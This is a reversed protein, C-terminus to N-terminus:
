VRFRAPMASASSTLSRARALRAERKESRRTTRAFRVDNWESRVARAGRLVAPEPREGHAPSMAAGFREALALLASFQALLRLFRRIALIVAGALAGAGLVTLAIWLAAWFLPPM